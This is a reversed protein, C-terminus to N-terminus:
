PLETSIYMYRRRRHVLGDAITPQGGTRGDTRGGVARPATLLEVTHGRRQPISKHLLLAASPLTPPAPVVVFWSADRDSLLILQWPRKQVAANVSRLRAPLM